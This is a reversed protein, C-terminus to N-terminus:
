KLMLMKKVSTFTRHPGGAATAELRYFYVGSPVNNGNWEVSRYGAQQMDDVLTAMTMGLVNYITLRVQSDSPLQYRITTTPNFPNPFNPDLGYTAPLEVAPHQVATTVTQLSRSFESTNNAMDTATACVSYGQPLSDPLTVVFSAHCASDTILYTTGLLGAGAGSAVSDPTPISFFQIM